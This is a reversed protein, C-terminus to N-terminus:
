SLKHILVKEIVLIDEATIKDRKQIYNVRNLSQIMNNKSLSSKLDSRSSYSIKGIGNWSDKTEKFYM